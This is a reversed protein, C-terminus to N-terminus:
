PRVGKPLRGIICEDGAPADLDLVRVAPHCVATDEVGLVRADLFRPPVPCGAEVALDAARSWALDIAHLMARATIARDADDAFTIPLSIM